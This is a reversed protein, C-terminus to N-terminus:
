IYGLTTPHFRHSISPQHCWAEVSGQHKRVMNLKRALVQTHNKVAVGTHPFPILQRSLSHQRLGVFQYPTVLPIDPMRLLITSLYKANAFTSFPVNLFVHVEKISSDLSGWPHMPASTDASFLARPWSATIAHVTMISTINAALAARGSESRAVAFEAM